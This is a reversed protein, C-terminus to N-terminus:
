LHIIVESQASCQAIFKRMQGLSIAICGLTPRNDQHKLHFFIASGANRKRPYINYDLVLCIDYLHDDRWLKEYSCPFPLRVLRNYYRNSPDDCWGHEPKIPYM